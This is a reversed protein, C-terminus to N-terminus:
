RAHARGAPIGPLFLTGGQSPNFITVDRKANVKLVVFHKSSPQCIKVKFLIVLQKNVGSVVHGCDRAHGGLVQRGHPHGLGGMSLLELRLDAFQSNM